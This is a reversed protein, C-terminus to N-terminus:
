PRSRRRSTAGKIARTTLDRRPHHGRHLELQSFHRRRAAVALAQRRRARARRRPANAPTTPPLQAADEDRAPRCHGVSPAGALAASDVEPVPRDHVTDADRPRNSNAGIAQRDSRGAPRKRVDDATEKPRTGWRSRPATAGCLVLREDALPPRSEAVPGNNTEPGSANRLARSTPATSQQRRRWLHWVLLGGAAAVLAGLILMPGSPKAALSPSGDLAGLVIAGCAIAAGSDGEKAAHGNDM